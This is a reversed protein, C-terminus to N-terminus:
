FFKQYVKVMQLATKNWSFLKLREKGRLVLRRREADDNILRLCSDVMSDLNHPDFYCGADGAIEPFCSTNSLAVPCGCAFAELIPLGFGEYLSPFIFLLARGYLEELDSDAAAVHLVSASLDLQRMEESEGKSFPKGTCILILGREQKRIQVFARLLLSFNKYFTRDGVFLLYRPPLSLRNKHISPHLSNGHYIVDIKEPAINLINVIDKKTNESIAIIRDAHCITEKKERIVKDADAFQGPFLEHIMDHVTIIYPHGNLYDLFYPDYYTPHFVCPSSTDLLEKVLARNDLLLRKRLRNFIFHPVSKLHRDVRYEKLYYNDTYKVAVDYDMPIHTMVECFYRSIGGFRQINFIQDDFLVSLHDGKESLSMVKGKKDGM